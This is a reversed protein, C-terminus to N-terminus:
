YLRKRCNATETKAITHDKYAMNEAIEAMSYDLSYLKMIKRCKEGLQELVTDMVEGFQTNAVEKEPDAVSDNFVRWHLAARRWDSRRRTYHWQRAISVIYTRVASKAPDYKGARVQEAFVVLAVSLADKADADGGGLSFVQAFVARRLADDKLLMKLAAEEAARDAQLAAVIQSDTWLLHKM